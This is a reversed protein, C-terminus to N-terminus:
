LNWSGQSCYTSDIENPLLHLVQVESFRYNTLSKVHWSINPSELQTELVISDALHGVCTGFRTSMFFWIFTALRFNAYYWVLFLILWLLKLCKFLSVLVGTGFRTSMYSHLSVFILTNCYHIFLLTRFSRNPSPYFNKEVNNVKRYRGLKLLFDVNGNRELLLLHYL